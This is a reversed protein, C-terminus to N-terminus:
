KLKCIQAWVKDLEVYLSSIVPSELNEEIAELTGTELVRIEDIISAAGDDGSDTIDKLTKKLAAIEAKTKLWDNDYHKIVDIELKLKDLLDDYLKELRILEEKKVGKEGVKYLSTITKEPAVLVREKKCGFAMSSVIAIAVIKKLKM